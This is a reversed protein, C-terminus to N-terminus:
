AKIGDAAAHGALLGRYSSSMDGGPRAHCHLEASLILINVVSSV